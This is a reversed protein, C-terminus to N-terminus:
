HTQPHQSHLLHYTTLSTLFVAGTTALYLLTRTRAHQIKEPSLTPEEHNLVIGLRDFSTKTNAIATIWDTVEQVPIGGPKPLITAIGNLASRGIRTGLLGILKKGAKPVDKGQLESYARLISPFTSTLTASLAALEASLDGRKHAANIRYLGLILESARDFGGDVLQGTSSDHSLPDEAQMVRALSGDFADHLMSGIMLSSVLLISPTDSYYAAGKKNQEYTAYAGALAVGCFGAVTLHNPRVSPFHKHLKTTIVPIIEGSIVQIMKSIKGEPNSGNTSHPESETSMNKPTILRTQLSGQSTHDQSM